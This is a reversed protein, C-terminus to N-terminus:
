LNFRHLENKMGSNNDSFVLDTVPSFNVKCIKQFTQNVRFNAGRIILGKDFIATPNEVKIM